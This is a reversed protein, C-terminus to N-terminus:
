KVRKGKKGKKYYKAFQPQAEILMEWSDDFDGAIEGDYKYDWYQSSADGLKDM